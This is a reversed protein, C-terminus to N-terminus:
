ALGDLGLVWRGLWAAGVWRYLFKCLKPIVETDTDSEFTDGEKM